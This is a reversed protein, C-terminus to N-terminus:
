RRPLDLVVPAANWASLTVKGGGAPVERWHLRLRLVKAEGAGLWFFNDSAYFMRRAGAVDVTTLFSPTKGTNRVEVEVDADGVAAGRAAVLKAALTARTKGATPKLWPGKSLAPWEVPKERFRRRTGEDSLMSLSRPWYVSRSVVAGAQTRLEVTLFFYRDAYGAPIAFSGLDAEAVSPGAKVSVPASRTWLRGFADDYATAVVQLGPRADPLAHSVAARMPITEGPAWLLAPQKLQVHTSEYTRKLFYYPATPQGFADALMIAVIPWPRKYVWPILGTTDPYQAQMSESVIQYFEGAGVQSAESLAEITPANMDDIHSARSLMRPVRSPQFEGFHHRFEPHERAFEPSYMNALPRAFERAAVVERMSAAEPINHMGTEAMFPVFKYEKGYWTPDKDPYEHVSGGDPSTRRYPRTGDFTLVNREFIGISASNGAAYPNAENGGCWVALSPQNRLRQVNRAVQAEWVDQPWDPTLMNSVQFEQWVLIGNRNCAAYFDETEVLGAGWIRFMQVGLNRAMGILWDYRSRPLDLLLDAPMWNIGKVFFPRGNVEFQWDHWLDETRLGPSRVTRVTRIGYEFAISDVAKGGSLLEVQANYLEPKGLGNPWWLRPSRVTFQQEIWSRGQPPRSPATTHQFEVAGSAPNRLTLRLSVPDGAPRATHSNVFHTFRNQGTSHLAYQHTHSDLFVEASLTLNASAASAAETALFPRELHAKPVIEVRAGRWMGFVYFAEAATGGSFVWPHIVSGPKRSIDQGWRGWNSSRIELVVENATGYKAKGSIEVDPGGFMGEHRGLLEGNLWLRAFYDAGDFCLFVYQGRASEPVTFSRRYYWVKKEAPRYQESNLNHYPHPLKGARYLAMHVSTPQEVRMWDAAGLEATREIQRDLGALEWERDLALHQAGGRPSIYYPRWLTADAATLAAALGLWAILLRM